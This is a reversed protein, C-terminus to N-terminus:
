PLKFFNTNRIYNKGATIDYQILKYDDLLRKTEKSMDSYAMPKGDRNLYIPQGEPIRDWGQITNVVPPEMASIRNHLKTLLALYASVKANMHSAAKAVFFNPSAYDNERIKYANEHARKMSSDRQQRAKKNSWIFYDTLHLALSNKEDASATSYVGPLHDGYFVVTVPKNLKDLEQLFDATAEDTYKVGQAYTEISTTEDSGLSEAGNAANAKFDNHAYWNRYPMHNQMTVIQVFRSGNVNAIKEFASKYASADSVYPSKDLMDRHAIVDPGQLAYFKGFGFKKYNTSRLYMSPEYPHCAVSRSADGWYQNITPSWQANPVLQQYPSTLSASFNVMSLGTLSMYELNATGGGYGSSLMIGSDTHQKLGSIFPMPNKNLQLGPVRSPDSFSESLVYVVTNDTLNTTRSRNIRKAEDAYREYLAKMTAESYNAPKDM